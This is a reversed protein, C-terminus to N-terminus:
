DKDPVPHAIKKWATEYDFGVKKGDKTTYRNPDWTPSQENHCTRCLKEDQLLLGNAVSKERSKMISLSKYKEGPGHCTECQVGDEIDFRRKLYKKKQEETLNWGTAHCRLCEASEHPAKALGVKEAVKKAEDSKLTEYAKSHGANKWKTYQEGQKKSRHCMKCTDVGVYAYKPPEPANEEGGRSVAATSIALLALALGTLTLQWTLRGTMLEEWDRM